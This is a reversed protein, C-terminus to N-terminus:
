SGRTTGAAPPSAEPPSTSPSRVPPPSAPPTVLSIDEPDLDSEATEEAEERIMSEVPEMPPESDEALAPADDADEDADEDREDAGHLTVRLRKIRLGSMKQVKFTAGGLTVTDGEQPVRDLARFVVGGITTMRPDHIDLNTLHCFRELTLSGSVTLRHKSDVKYTPKHMDQDALDGFVFALLDHKTVFGDVGGFENVVIAHDAGNARMADLMEDVKKTPPVIYPPRVLSELELTAIDQGEIMARLVDGAHLIGIITDRNDRYVPMQAFQYKRMRKLMDPLPMRADLYRIRPRPVMVEIVETDASRLLNDIMTREVATVEGAAEVHELLTRFEDVRLLHTRERDKGVFLTTLRDSVIRVVVRLPAIFNVWASMPASIKSAIGVPNTVALTKPTVEGLLMVLPFMLVINAIAAADPRGYLALLLGALNISAAINLLENGCLISIILQRPSDLLRHLNESQAHKQRRLKQLDLRSLSFLSTESMSFFASGAFLLVQLLIRALVDADGLRSTDIQLLLGLNFGGDEM